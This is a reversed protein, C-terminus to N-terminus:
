IGTGDIVQKPRSVGSGSDGPAQRRMSLDIKAIFGKGAAAGLLNIGREGGRSRQPRQLLSRPMKVLESSASPEDAAGRPHEGDGCRIHDERVVTSEQFGSADVTSQVCLQPVSESFGM